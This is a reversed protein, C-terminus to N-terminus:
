PNQALFRVVVKRISSGTYKGPISDAIRNWSQCDLFRARFVQRLFSDPISNIYEMLRVREIECQKQMATIQVYIDACEIAGAEVKGAGGGKPMGSLDLSSPSAARREIEAARRKLEEIERNLWYLQSLEKISM